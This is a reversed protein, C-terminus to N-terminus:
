IILVIKINFMTITFRGCLCSRFFIKLFSCLFLTGAALFSSIRTSYPYTIIIIVVGIYYMRVAGM